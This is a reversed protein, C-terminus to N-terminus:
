NTKLISKPYILPTAADTKFPQEWPNSNELDSSEFSFDQSLSKSTSSNRKSNPAKLKKSKLKDEAEPNKIKVFDFQKGRRMGVVQKTFKDHIEFESKTRHEKRKFNQEFM